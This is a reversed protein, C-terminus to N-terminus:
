KNFQFSRGRATVSWCGVACGCADANAASLLRQKSSRRGPM